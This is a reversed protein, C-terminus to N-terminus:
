RHSENGEFSKLPFNLSSDSSHRGFGCVAINILSIQPIFFVPAKPLRAYDSRTQSEIPGPMKM